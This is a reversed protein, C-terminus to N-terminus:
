TRSGILYARDSTSLLSSIVMTLFPFVSTFFYFIFFIGFLFYFGALNEMGGM